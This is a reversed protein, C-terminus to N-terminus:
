SREVRQNRVNLICIFDNPFIENSMLKHDLENFAKNIKQFESYKNALGAFYEMYVYLATFTYSNNEKISLSHNHKQAYDRILELSPTGSDIHEKAWPAGIIEWMRQLNEDAIKDLYNNGTAFPNLLIVNSKSLGCLNDLFVSKQDDSIHEFVHCAIVCDFRKEKFPLDLASIGNVTPEALVYKVNPLFCALYGAGGGIDLISIKSLEDRYIEKIYDSLIKLRIYTHHSIDLLGEDEQLPCEDIMKRLVNISNQAQNSVKLITEKATRFLGLRFYAEALKVLTDEDVKEELAMGTRFLAIAEYYRQEQFAKTALKYQNRVLSSKPMLFDLFM